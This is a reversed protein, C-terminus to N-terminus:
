RKKYRVIPKFLTFYMLTITSDNISILENRYIPSKNIRDPYFFLLSNKSLEFKGIYNITDPRCIFNRHYNLENREENYFIEFEFILTSESDFTIGNNIQRYNKCFDKYSIYEDDNVLVNDIEWYGILPSNFNMNNPQIDSNDCSFLMIITIVSITLILKM